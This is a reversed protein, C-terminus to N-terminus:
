WFLSRNKSVAPVFRPAYMSILEAPVPTPDFKSVAPPIPAVPTLPGVPAEPGAPGVPAAPVLPVFPTVPAEPGVPADPGVPAEPGVPAVPGVPADPEDPGDPLLPPNNYVYLVVVVDPSGPDPFIRNLLVVSPLIVSIYILVVVRSLAYIGDYIAVHALEVFIAKFPCSM